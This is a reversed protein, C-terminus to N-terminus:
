TIVQPVPSFFSDLIAPLEALLGDFLVGVSNGQIVISQHLIEYVLCWANELYVTNLIEFRTKEINIIAHIHGRKAFETVYVCVYGCLCVCVYAHVHTCMCPVLVSYPDTICISIAIYWYPSQTNTDHHQAEHTDFHNYAHRLLNCGM